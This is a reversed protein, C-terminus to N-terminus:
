TSLPSSDRLFHQGPEELGVQERLESGDASIDARAIRVLHDCLRLCKDM